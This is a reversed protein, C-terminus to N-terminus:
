SDNENQELHELDGQEFDNYDEETEIPKNINNTNKKNDTENKFVIRKHNFMKAKKIIEDAFGDIKYYGPGPVGNDTGMPKKESKGMFDQKTNFSKHDEYTFNGENFPVYDDNIENNNKDKTENPETQARGTSSKGFSFVPMKPRVAAINPKIFYTQKLDNLLSKQNELKKFFSIKDENRGTLSFSPSKEEVQSYNIQKLLYNEGTQEFNRQIAFNIKNEFKERLIEKNELVKERFNERNENFDTKTALKYNNKNIEYKKLKEYIFSPDGPEEIKPTYFRESTDFIKRKQNKQLIKEFDDLFMHLEPESKKKTQKHWKGQISFGKKPDFKTRIDYFKPIPEEYNTSKINPLNRSKEQSNQREKELIKWKKDYFNIKEMIKSKKNNEISENLKVNENQKQKKIEESKKIEKIKQNFFQNKNKQYKEKSNIKISKPLIVNLKTLNEDFNEFFKQSNLNRLDRRKEFLHLNHNSIGALSKGPKRCQIEIADNIKKNKETLILMKKPDNEYKKHKFEPLNGETNPRKKENIIPGIKNIFIKNTFKTKKDFAIKFQEENKPYEFVNPDYCNPAPNKNIIEKARESKAFSKKEHLIQNIKQQFDSEFFDTFVPELLNFFFGDFNYFMKTSIEFYKFNYNKIFNNLKEKEENSFNVKADIKNGILAFHYNQIGFHNNINEFIISLKEFSNFDKLDFVLLFFHDVNFNSKQLIFKELESKMPKLTIRYNTEFDYDKDDYDPEYSADLPISELCAFFKLYLKKKGIQYIKTFNMLNQRLKEKHLFEKEENTLEKQDPENENENENDNSNENEDNSKKTSKEYTKSSNVLKFRKIISKKGVNYEGILYIRLELDDSM